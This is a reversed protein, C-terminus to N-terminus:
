MKSAEDFKYEYTKAESLLHDLLLPGKGKKKREIIYEFFSHISILLSNAAHHYERRRNIEKEEKPKQQQAEWATLPRREKRRGRTLLFFFFPCSLLLAVDYFWSSPYRGNVVRSLSPSFGKTTANVRSISEVTRASHCQCLVDGFFPSFFTPFNSVIVAALM